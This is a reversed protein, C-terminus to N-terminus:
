PRRRGVHLAPLLANYMRGNMYYHPECLQGRSLRVAAPRLRLRPRQQGHACRGATRPCDAPVAPVTTSTWAGQTFTVRIAAATSPRRVPTGGFQHGGPPAHAAWAASRRSAQPQARRRPRGAGAGTRPQRGCEHPDGAVVQRRHVPGQSAGGVPAPGRSAGGVAGSPAPETALGESRGQGSTPHSGEM